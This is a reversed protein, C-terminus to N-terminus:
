AQRRALESLITREIESESTGTTALDIGLQAIQDIADPTVGLLKWLRDTVPQLERDTSIFLERM